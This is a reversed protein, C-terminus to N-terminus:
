ATAAFAATAGASVTAPRGSVGKKGLWLTVTLPDGRRHRVDSTVVGLARFWGGVEEDSFGLRRHAHESRLAELDHPAFDVGLLRGGARLVRSAERLVAAPDTAYHLVQHLVVLDFSGADLDLRYMDGHRIQVNRRGTRGLNTRAIALMERSVDVGVARRARDGLVELIRGTGTGLDLLDGVDDDGIITRMASEVEHEDVHLARLRHWEPANEAFYEAAVNARALRVADLRDRDRALTADNAPLFELLRRGLQASNGDERLRYFVWTAEPFRELLGGDVLQKLHHSVRPQSQGLIQTLESVTLEGHALLALVRIRTTEAAARLGTVLVSMTNSEDM